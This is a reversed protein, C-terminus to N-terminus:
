ARCAEMVAKVIADLIETQHAEFSPRIFPQAAMKWTGMEVFLAYEASAGFEYNLQDTMNFFITSRLFGTRVPVINQSYDVMKRGTEQFAGHVKTLLNLSLNNLMQTATDEIVKMQFSM